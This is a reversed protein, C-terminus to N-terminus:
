ASEVIDEDQNKDILLNGNGDGNAQSTSEKSITQSGQEINTAIKLVHHIFDYTSMPGKMFNCKTCCPVCNEKYYGNNSDLRDIGNVPTDFVQNEYKKGLRKSRREPEKNCYYCNQSTLEIFDDSSLNWEINRAKAGDTYTRWLSNLAPDDTITSKSDCYKCKKTANWQNINYLRVSQRGCVTCETLYYVWMAQDGNKLTPREIHDLAIVKITGYIKGVRENVSELCNGCKICGRLNGHAFHHWQIVKREKCNTCEIEAYYNGTSKKKYKKLLKWGNVVSGQSSTTMEIFDSTIEMNYFKYNFM